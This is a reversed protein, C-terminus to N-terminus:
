SQKPFNPTSLVSHAAAKTTSGFTSTNLRRKTTSSNWANWYKEKGKDTEPTKLPRMIRFGVGTAPSTTYWWPSLPYNPDEDKWEEDESGLRSASRCENAELEWSGGRVVRPYVEEPWNIATESTLEEGEWDSYDDTHGDLVWEAASGHMDYLGWPNPKKQAVDHRKDDSNDKFWGYETLKKPDDGFSYATKTGARCAYEWEVESPLRYFGKTLKSVWKTYQKAAYQTMTVAPQDPGNGSKYTFSSDYLNSPATIADVKKDEAVKRMDFTQFEKFIDHMAMYAQYEKWTVETKAMWFPKMTVEVQPGEDDNRDKEGEPSGFTFKGGPIPIMEFTATTGPITVTYPVMYGGDIKVSPGKTPKEKAIGLVAKPEELANAASCFAVFLLILMLNAITKFVSHGQHNTSIQHSCSLVSSSLKIWKETSLSKEKDYESRM